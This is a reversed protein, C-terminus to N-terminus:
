LLHKFYKANKNSCSTRRSLYEWYISFCNCVVWIVRITVVGLLGVHCQTILNEEIM